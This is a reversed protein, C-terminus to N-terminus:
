GSRGIISLLFVRPACIPALISVKQQGAVRVVSTTYGALRCNGKVSSWVRCTDGGVPREKQAAMMLIMFIWYRLQPASRDVFLGLNENLLEVRLSASM